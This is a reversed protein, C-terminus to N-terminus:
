KRQAALEQYLELLKKEEREWNYYEQVARRGNEGMEKAETPHDALWQVAAALEQPNLPDVCLGCKHTGLVHRWQPFNSAIVPIGAEMYEYMKTPQSHIHNPEPHLVVLGALCNGLLEAVEKRQIYGLQQVQKWGPMRKLQELLATDEIGGAIALAVDTHAIAEVMELIGRKPSVAGVYCVTRPVRGHVRDAVPQKALIPYNNINIANCGLDKFRKCIHPTACVIVDFVRVALNEFVEALFSIPGRLWPTIWERSLNQRPFDEHSDYVVTKGKLKLLIAIPILEFDHIHYIDAEEQVARRYVDWVTRSFRTARTKYKPIARIKVKDVMEDGSHPVILTVDYGSKALSVCEKHYVRIDFPPHVSTLHCVKINRM